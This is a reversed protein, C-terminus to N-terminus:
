GQDTLELIGELPISVWDPRHNLEYGLEYIAKRLQYVGLWARVDTEDGPLFPAGGARALYGLLFYEASRHFWARLRAGRDGGSTDGLPSRLMTRSAYHFSRIMGAVDLLPSAKERRQALSRTTEGEFDIIVFREEAFLVQGLHYDGHCRIRVAGPSRGGLRAIRELVAARRALVAGALAADKERLGGVAAELFSLGEEAEELIRSIWASGDEAAWPEPVFGVGPAAALALHLEATTAGLGAMSEFFAQGEADGRISELAFDWGTGRHPVFEHALALVRRTGNPERYCLGGVLPAVVGCKM